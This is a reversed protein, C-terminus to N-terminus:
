GGLLPMSCEWIYDTYEIDRDCKIVGNRDVELLQEFEMGREYGNVRIDIQFEKAVQVIAETDISWAAKFNTAFVLDNNKKCSQSSIYGYSDLKVFHRHTHPIYLYDPYKKKSDENQNNLTFKIEIYEDEEFKITSQFKEECGFNSVPKLGEMIFKKVNEKSGRFRFTGEIWNPM